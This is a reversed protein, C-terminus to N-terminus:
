EAEVILKSLPRRGELAQQDKRMDDIIIQEAENCAQTIEQAHGISIAYGVVSIFTPIFLGALFSKNM